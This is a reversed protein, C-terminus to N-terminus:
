SVSSTKKGTLFFVSVARNISDGPLQRGRPRRLWVHAAASDPVTAYAGHNVVTPSCDGGPSQKRRYASDRHETGHPWRSRALGHARFSCMLGRVDPVTEAPHAPLTKVAANHLTIVAIVARITGHAASDLISLCSVVGM